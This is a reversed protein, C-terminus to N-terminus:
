APLRAPDFNREAATLRRPVPYGWGCLMDVRDIFCPETEPTWHRIFRMSIGVARDIVVSGDPACLVKVAAPTGGWAPASSVAPKLWGCFPLASLATLFARRNM